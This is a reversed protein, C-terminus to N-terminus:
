AEAEAQEVTPELRPTRVPDVHMEGGDAMRDDAVRGVAARALRDRQSSRKQVGGCERESMGVPSRIHNM